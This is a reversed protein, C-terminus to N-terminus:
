NALYENGKFDEQYITVSFPIDCLDILERMQQKVQHIVADQENGSSVIVAIDNQKKAVRLIRSLYNCGGCTRGSIEIREM